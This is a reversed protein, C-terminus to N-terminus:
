EGRIEKPVGAFRAQRRLEELGEKFKALRAEDDVIEKKYREYTEIDKGDYIQGVRRGKEFVSVFQRKSDLGTEAKEIEKMMRDFEGKWWEITKDGYLEQGSESPPTVAGDGAATPGAPPPAKERTTPAAKRVEVKNRYERPVKELSDTIHTNGSKDKWQYIDAYANAALFVVVAMATLLSKM